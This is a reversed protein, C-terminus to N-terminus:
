FALRLWDEDQQGEWGEIHQQLTRGSEYRMAMYATGNARFFNLVRVVNPHHLSALARAEEFFCKLGARFVVFDSERATSLARWAIAAPMYEKLAVLSREADCALYVFSQGGSALTGLIRHGELEFGKPLPLNLQM